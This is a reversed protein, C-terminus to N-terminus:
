VFYCIKPAKKCFRGSVKCVYIYDSKSIYNECYIYGSEFIYPLNEGGTEKGCDSCLIVSTDRKSFPLAERMGALTKLCAPCDMSDGCRSTKYAVVGYSIRRSLRTISSLGHLSYAVEAFFRSLTATDNIDEDGAIEVNRCVLLVLYKRMSPVFNERCFLVAEQRKNRNCLDIFVFIKLLSELLSANLRKGDLMVTLGKLNVRYEKCFCLAEEFNSEVISNTTKHVFSFFTGDIKISHSKAFADAFPSNTTYLHEAILFSSDLPPAGEIATNLDAVRAFTTSLRDKMKALKAQLDTHTLKNKSHMFLIKELVKFDSKLINYRTHTEIISSM